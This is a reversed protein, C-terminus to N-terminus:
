HRGFGAIDKLETFEIQIGYPQMENKIKAIIKEVEKRKLIQFFYIKYVDPNSYETFNIRDIKSLNDELIKRAGREGIKGTASLTCTYYM